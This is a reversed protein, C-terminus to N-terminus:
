TDRLPKEDISTLWRNETSTDVQFRRKLSTKKKEHKSSRDMTKSAVSPCSLRGYVRLDENNRLSLVFM